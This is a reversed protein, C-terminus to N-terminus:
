FLKNALIAIYDTENIAKTIRTDTENAALSLVYEHRARSSALYADKINDFYGIHKTKGNVSFKAQYKKNQKSWSVGRPCGNNSLNGQSFAQNLKRSVFCCTEPSYLKNEVVLIDKDLEKNKWDQKQMWKKFSTFSIWEDCVLAENYEHHVMKYKKCSVRMLMSKWKAYYPCIAQKGDILLSITYEADNIGIGYVLKM